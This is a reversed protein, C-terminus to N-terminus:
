GTVVGIGLLSVRVIGTLYEVTQGTQVIEKPRYRNTGTKRLLM